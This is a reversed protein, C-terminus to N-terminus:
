KNFDRQERIWKVIIKECKMQFFILVLPSCFFMAIGIAEMGSFVGIAFLGTLVLYPVELTQFISIKKKYKKPMDTHNYNRAIYECAWGFCFSSCERFALIANKAYSLIEQQPVERILRIRSCVVKEGIDIMEGDAEVEFLRTNGLLPYFRTVDEITKCFHFGHCCPEIKGDIEYWKGIEYQMWNGHTAVMNENLGKYGKIM